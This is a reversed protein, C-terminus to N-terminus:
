NGLHCVIYSKRHMSVFKDMKWNSTSLLRSSIDWILYV